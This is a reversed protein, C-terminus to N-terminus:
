DINSIKENKIVKSQMWHQDTQVHGSRVWKGVKTGFDSFQFEASPRIVFGEQLNADIESIIHCLRDQTLVGRYLVPVTDIGLLDCYDETDDWSLCVDGNWISFVLFYDSLNHYALSHTAYCNEGCIRFGTPIDARIKGWLGKVYHRSPHDKSDLSRAHIHDQYMTTNEGDMKETIVVETGLIASM